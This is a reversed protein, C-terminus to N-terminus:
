VKMYVELVKSPRAPILSIEKLMAPVLMTEGKHLSVPEGGKYNVMLEGETCIYVVFSDILAFDKDVPRDFEILSTTFYPCDALNVTSNPIRDYGTRTDDRRKYDMVQLALDLHLERGKGEKDVRDWDYIRYTINSTQQIEALVIGKGIAHIRGAPLFFVDGRKVPEYNLIEPLKKGNLQEMFVKEDVDRKFGSILKAGEDADIVYWMETKGRDNHVRAAFDDGPHVQVSLPERADIFKILVPFEAGFREFVRDGTLDGMYISILEDLPNGKLFGESVVSVNDTVGSIEWSEATIEPTNQKYLLSKLKEGGWLYEKYIPLFKLPYLTKEM